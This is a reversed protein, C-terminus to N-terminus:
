DVQMQEGAVTEFRIVSDNIIDRKKYEVALFSQLISRGGVYGM